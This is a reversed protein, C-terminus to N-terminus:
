YDANDADVAGTLFSGGMRLGSPVMLPDDTVFGGNYTFPDPSHSFSPNTYHDGLQHNNQGLICGSESVPHTAVHQDSQRSDPWLMIPLTRSTLAHASTSLHCIPSQSAIQAPLFTELSQGALSAPPLTAQPRGVVPAPPFTASTKLMFPSMLPLLYRDSAVVCGPQSDLYGTANTPSVLTQLPVRQPSTVRPDLEQFESADFPSPRASITKGHPHEMIQETTAMAQEQPDNGMSGNFSDDNDLDCDIICTHVNQLSYPPTKLQKGHKVSQLASAEIEEWAAQKLTAISHAFAASSAGWKTDLSGSFQGANGESDKNRRGFEVWM